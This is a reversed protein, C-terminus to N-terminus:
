QPPFDKAPVSTLVASTTPVILACVGTKLLNGTEEKSDRCLDLRTPVYSSRM